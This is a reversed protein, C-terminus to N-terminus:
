RIVLVRRTARAGSADMRALYLGAPVRTGLDDRGDWMVRQMGPSGEGDLLRRVRRGSPDYISLSVAGSRALSIDFTTTGACPNPYAPGLHAGTRPTPDGVALTEDALGFGILHGDRTGVYLHNAHVGPPDFKAGQGVPASFRLPMVGDVPIPDYARLEAGNGSFDPNWVVWVLASGSRSNDSTVVPSSSAFGFSDASAGAPVFTPKGTSDIAAQLALLNGWAGEPSLERNTTPVYLWGGDGGWVAPKSWVGGLFGVESVIGDTAGPGMQCGGLSGEDMVYLYGPKGIQVCLNPHEPTGFASSPLGVVGGSGLDADIPDYDSLSNYPTFFDTAQLTGGAQVHLRVISESLEGPPTNGPIPSDPTGGGMGNGTAFLIQGLGDSVLASGAMWIGGGSAGGATRDAWRATIVGATSVGIIWGQWTGVDCVSSFGAYVVGNMLLLGTRQTQTAATFSVGSANNATGAITVPFGTREVGTSLTIAHMRWQVTGSTGTRYQKSMFYAIGTSEDIVPTSTIGIVPTIDTCGAVDTANVPNGVKRSWLIAGTIPNLGYIWNSQTCVLLVNNSVLPQAYVQGTVTTSFRQGFNASAVNGPTLLKQDQYWSTRQLDGDRTVQSADAAVATAASLVFALLACHAFAALSPL